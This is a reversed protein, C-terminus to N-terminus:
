PLVTGPARPFGEDFLNSGGRLGSKGGSDLLLDCPPSPNFGSPSAKSAQAIRFDCTYAGLFTARDDFVRVNYGFDSAATSFRHIVQYRELYDMLSWLQRNVVLDVRGIGNDTRPYALWTQLLKGGFEELDAIQERIWWLSPVTLGTQSITTATVVFHPIRDPKLADLDLPTLDPLMRAPSASPPEAALARLGPQVCVLALSFSFLVVRWGLRPNFTISKGIM